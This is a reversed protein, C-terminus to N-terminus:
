FTRPDNRKESLIFFIHPVSQETQTKKVNRSTLLSLLYQKQPLNLIRYTSMQKSTIVQLNITFFLLKFHQNCKQRNKHRVCFFKRKYNRLEKLYKNGNIEEFYGNTKNFM